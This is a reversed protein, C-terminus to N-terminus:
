GESGEQTFTDKIFDQVATFMGSFIIDDVNAQQHRSLHTILTGGHHILFLEEATFKSKKRYVAGAIGVLILIIIILFPLINILLDWLTPSKPPENLRLRVEVIQSAKYQGDDVTIEIEKPLERSGLFILSTGSVVVFDNDITIELESINNDVDFIYPELDLVWRESENGVQMPIIMLEPPDNLPLVTVLVLDQQLAGTPDTARFYVLEPGYWDKPAALDVSHDLNITINIYKNGTTYYLIDGDIDLFYNDLDFANILKEDELFLIDPLPSLLEPPFDESITVTVEQFGSDLGDSVTLRLALTQGLLSEPYNLIIVMNNRLDIRIHDTDSPIIRLEDTSNDNDYVYPTLDFRYDHDYRIKFNPVGAITPPDNVPLVTVIISDEAIAGIPDRARFTVLESGTWESAASIDVTHDTHITIELHSEGFSFYIADNDPDTFYDDLDFVNYKTTSEYLWIDPLLKTLKPVHDSTVQITIIDQAIAEGDSVSVTA